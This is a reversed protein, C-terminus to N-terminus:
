FYVSAGMSVGYSNISWGKSSSTQNVTADGTTPYTIVGQASTKTSSWQYQIGESYEARLSFWRVPFWEIGGVGRAGLAWQTSVDSSNIRSWNYGFNYVIPQSTLSSQLQTERDRSFSVSPGVGVYLHVVDHPNMYWLRQVVLSLSLSHSSNDGSASVTSADPQNGNQLQTGDTFTGNITISARVASSESCHYKLAL